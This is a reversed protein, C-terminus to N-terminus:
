TANQTDSTQDAVEDLFTYEFMANIKICAFKYPLRLGSGQFDKAVM